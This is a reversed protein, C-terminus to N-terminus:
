RGESSVSERDLRDRQWLVLGAAAAAPVLWWAAFGLMWVVRPLDFAAGVWACVKWVLPASAVGVLWSFACAVALGINRVRRQQFAEAEDRVRFSTSAALGAPLVVSFNLLARLAADARSAWGACDDCEGLHRELWIRDETSLGEVRERDILRRAREHLDEKM